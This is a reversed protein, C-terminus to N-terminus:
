DARVVSSTIMMITHMLPLILVIVIMLATFKIIIASLVHLPLYLQEPATTDLPAQLPHDPLLPKAM